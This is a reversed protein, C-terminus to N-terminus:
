GARLSRLQQERVREMGTFTFDVVRDVLEPRPVDPHDLWWNALSQVAGSLQQAYMQVAQTREPDLRDPVDPDEAMLRAILTAAQERVLRLQDAVDPDIADRFLLRWAERHEEVFALVAGVGSRLRQEATAGDVASATMRAFLEGVHLELLSRHLERKSPFHEYILAKSIGAATAIEDISSGLYGGRSFVELAAGLIAERREQASM